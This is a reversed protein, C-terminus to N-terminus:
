TYDTHWTGTLVATANVSNTHIYSICSVWLLPGHFVEDNKVLAPHPSSSNQSSDYATIIVCM